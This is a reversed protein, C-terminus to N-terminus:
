RNHEVKPRLLEFRDATRVYTPGGMRGLARLKEPDIRFNNFLEDAVHFLVVEGIVLSGSGAESGIRVIQTLRCEM